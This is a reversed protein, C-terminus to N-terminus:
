LLILRINLPFDQIEAFEWFEICCIRQHPEEKEHWWGGQGSQHCKGQLYITFQFNPLPQWCMMQARGTHWCWVFKYGEKVVFYDNNVWTTFIVLSTKFCYWNAYRINTMKKCPCFKQRIFNVGFFALKGRWVQLFRWKKAYFRDFIGIKRTLDTFFFKCRGFKKKSLCWWQWVLQWLWGCM